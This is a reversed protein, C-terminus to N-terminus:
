GSTPWVADDLASGAPWWALETGLRRNVASSLTWAYTASIHNDDVYTLVGGLEPRCRGDPCVRDSLDLWHGGARRVDRHARAVEASPPGVEAVCRADDVGLQQGCAFLNRSFRPNDRFVVVEAGTARVEQVWPVLGEDVYEAEAGSATGVLGVLDPPDVRFQELAAAFLGACAVERGRLDDGTRFQCGPQLWAQLRWGEDEATPAITGAFQRAHSGGILVVDRSGPGDSSVCTTAPTPASSCASGLVVWDERALLPPPLLATGTPRPDTAGVGALPTGTAELRQQDRRADLQQGALAAAGLVTGGLAVVVTAAVLPARLSPRTWRPGPRRAVWGVLPREVAHVLLVTIGGSVLIVLTGEALTARDREAWALFLILVPWHVLYLGYTYGGIRGLVPHALFRDAGWRTPRTGAAGIMLCTALVPWLAVWGPFVRQADIVLGCALLSVLGIWSGWTRLRIGPTWALLLLALLSGAAFEWLRATTDFYAKAQATATMWVSVALSGAFITGFGLALLRRLRIGTTRATVAAVLHLLPWLVFVQGQISLSWYHQLPSVMSADRDYYDVAREQLLLNETYTLCARVEELLGPLRWQAMLFWGAVLVLVLVTAALPLLRAFRLVIYRLPLTPEGREARVTLSWTMLYASVLLFADVGGSVRGLWVHYVVVMLLAVTRVGQIEPVYRRTREEAATDTV